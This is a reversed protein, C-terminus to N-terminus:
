VLNFGLLELIVVIIPIHIVYILLAYHGIYILPLLPKIYEPEIKLPYSEFARKKLALNGLFLGLFMLSIWPFIPFLDFTNMTTNQFGLITLPLVNGPITVLFDGLLYSGIALLLNLNTFRAFFMILLSAVAIFHLIGFRVYFDPQTYYTGLTVLLACIGVKVFRKLQRKYFGVPRYTRSIAMCVGVLTIFTFQVTRALILYGGSYLELGSQATFNYIFIAHFVVMGIVALGRLLDLILFRNKDKM